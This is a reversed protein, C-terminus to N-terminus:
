MASWICTVPATHWGESIAAQLDEAAIEKDLESAM